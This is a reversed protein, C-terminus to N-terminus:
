APSNLDFIRTRGHTWCYSESKKDRTNKDMEPKYTTPKKEKSQAQLDQLQKSTVLITEQSKTLIQYLTLNISTLNTMSDKNETASCALAHLADANM